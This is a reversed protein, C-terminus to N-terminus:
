RWRKGSLRGLVHERVCYVRVFSGVFCRMSISGPKMVIISLSVYLTVYLARRRCRTPWREGFDIQAYIIDLRVRMHFIYSSDSGREIDEATFSPIM